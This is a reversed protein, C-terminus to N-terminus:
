RLLLYYFFLGALFTLYILVKRAYFYDLTSSQIGLYSILIHSFTEFFPSYFRMIGYGAYNNNGPDVLNNTVLRGYTALSFDDVHIGYNDLSLLGFILLVACVFTLFILEKRDSTLKNLYTAISIKFLRGKIQLLSKNGNM